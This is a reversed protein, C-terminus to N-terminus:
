TVTVVLTRSTRSSRAPAHASSAGRDLGVTRGVIRMVRPGLLPAPNRSVTVTLTIALFKPVSVHVALNDLDRHAVRDRLSAPHFVHLELDGDSSPRATRRSHRRASATTQATLTYLAASNYLVASTCLAISPHLAIAARGLHV